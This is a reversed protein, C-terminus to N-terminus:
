ERAVLEAVLGERPYTGACLGGGRRLGHGQGHDHHRRREGDVPVHFRPLRLQQHPRQLRRAVPQVPRARPVGPQPLRGLLRPAGHEARGDDAGRQARPAGRRRDTACLELRFCM